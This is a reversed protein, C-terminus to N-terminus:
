WVEEQLWIGAFRLETIMSNGCASGHSAGDVLHLQIPCEQNSLSTVIQNLDVPSYFEDLAGHILYTPIKPCVPEMYDAAMPIAVDFTEPFNKAFFVSGTGGNSYGTVVVKNTDIPWHLKALRVFEVVREAHLDDWWQGGTPAFILADLFELAPLPLCEMFGNASNADGNGGHLAIILPVLTDQINDPVSLSYTWSKNGSLPMQGRQRGPTFEISQVGTETPLSMENPEPMEIVPGPAPEPPDESKQCQMSSIVIVFFIVSRLVAPKKM